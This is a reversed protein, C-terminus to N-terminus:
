YKKVVFVDEPLFNIFRPDVRVTKFLAGSVQKVNAVAGVELADPLGDLGSSVIFDGEKIEEQSTVLDVFLGQELAGHTRGVVNAAQVRVNISLRPDNLLWLLASHTYSEQVIGFLIQGQFIVAMGPKIDADQGRDILATRYPGTSTVEILKVLELELNRQRAVGLEKKLFDNEKLLEPIQRNDAQLDRVQNELQQRQDMWQEVEWWSVLHNRLWGSWRYQAVLPKALGTALAHSFYEGTFLNTIFIAVVVLLTLLILKPSRRNM